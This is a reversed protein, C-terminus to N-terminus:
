SRWRGICELLWPKSNWGGFHDEKVSWRDFDLRRHQQDHQVNSDKTDTHHPQSQPILILTSTRTIHTHLITHQIFQVSALIPPTNQKTQTNPHQHHFAQKTSTTSAFLREKKACYLIVKEGKRGRGKEKWSETLNGDEGVALTLYLKYVCNGYLLLFALTAWIPGWWCSVPVPLASCHDLSLSLVVCLM